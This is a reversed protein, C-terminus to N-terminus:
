GNLVAQIVRNAVGRMVEIPVSGGARAIVNKTRQWVTDNRIADLFDHGQWTLEFPLVYIVRDSTTSRVPEATIWAAEYLLNLHYKIFVPDYDGAIPPVEVSAAETRQDFFLLLKRVLDMDRTLQVGGIPEVAALDSM